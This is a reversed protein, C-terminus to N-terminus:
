VGYFGGSFLVLERRSREINAELAEIYIAKPNPEAKAKALRAQLDAIRESVIETARAVQEPNPM